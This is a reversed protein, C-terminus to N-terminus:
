RRVTICILDYGAVWEVLADDNTRQFRLRGGMESAFEHHFGPSPLTEALVHGDAFEEVIGHQQLERPLIDHKVIRNSGTKKITKHRNQM